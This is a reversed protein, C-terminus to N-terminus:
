MAIVEVDSLDVRKSAVWLDYQAQLNLWFEASTKFAKGLKMAMEASVGNKCNVLESATNRSVGIKLAFETISIKYDTLYLEKLIKGPHSPEFMQM